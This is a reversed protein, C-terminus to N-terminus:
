ASAISLSPATAARRATALLAAIQGVIRQQDEEALECYLPLRVLRGSLSETVPLDGAQYGFREGMPSTHLPVYHFVATIGQSKLHAILSDRTPQDAVLIHFLHYNTCCNEPVVPLRLLGEAEM